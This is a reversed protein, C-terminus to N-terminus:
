ALFIITCDAFAYEQLFLGNLESEPSIINNGSSTSDTDSEGYNYM